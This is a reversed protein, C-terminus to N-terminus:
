RAPTEWGALAAIEIALYVIAIATMFCLVLWTATKGLWLKV